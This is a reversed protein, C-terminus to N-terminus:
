VRNISIFAVLEELKVIRHPHLHEGSLWGFGREDRPGKRKRVKVLDGQLRVTTKRLEEREVKLTEVDHVLSHETSANGLVVQMQVIDDKIDDLAKQSSKEADSKHFQSSWFTM